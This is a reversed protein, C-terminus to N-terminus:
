IGVDFFITDYPRIAIQINAEKATWGHFEASYGGFIVWPRRGDQLHRCQFQAETKFRWTRPYSDRHRFCAFLRATSPPDQIVLHLFFPSNRELSKPLWSYFFDIVVFTNRNDLRIAHTLHCQQKVPFTFCDKVTIQNSKKFNVQIIWFEKAKENITNTFHAETNTEHGERLKQVSFEGVLLKQAKKKKWRM